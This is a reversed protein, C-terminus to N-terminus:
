PTDENSHLAALNEFTKSLEKVGRPDQEYFFEKIKKNIQRNIKHVLTEGSKTLTLIKARGDDSSETVHILKKEILGDVLRSVSSKELHLISVLDNPRLKKSRAIDVLASAQSLSLGLDYPDTKLVGIKRNFGRMFERVLELDKNKIM